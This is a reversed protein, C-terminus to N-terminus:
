ARSFRVGLQDLEDTPVGFGVFVERALDGLLGGVILYLQRDNTLPQPDGKVAARGERLETFRRVAALGSHAGSESLASYISYASRSSNADDKGVGDRADLGTAIAYLDRPPAEGRAPKSRGPESVDEASALVAAVFEPAVGGFETGLAAAQNAGRRLFDRTMRVLEDGGTPGLLFRARLGVEIASRLLLEAAPTLVPVRCARAADLLELGRFLLAAATALRCGDANFPAALDPRRRHIEVKFADLLGGLQDSARTGAM